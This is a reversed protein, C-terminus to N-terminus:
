FAGLVNVLITTQTDRAGSDSEFVAHNSLDRRLDARLVFRPTLRLEPTLTIESLTQAQGTRVGDRDDFTEARV